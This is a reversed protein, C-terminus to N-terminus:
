KVWQKQIEATEVEGNVRRHTYITQTEGQGKHHRGEHNHTGRNLAKRFIDLKQIGKSRGVWNNTQEKVAANQSKSNPGCGEQWVALVHCLCITIVM